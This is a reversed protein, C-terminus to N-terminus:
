GNVNDAVIGKGDGSSPMAKRDSELYEMLDARRFYTKRGKKIGKLKNKSFLTNVTGHKLKLFAAAGQADMLEEHLGIAKLVGTESLVRRVEDRILQRLENNLLQLIIIGSM